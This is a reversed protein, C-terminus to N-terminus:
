QIFSLTHKAGVSLLFAPGLNKGNIYLQGFYCKIWWPSYWPDDTRHCNHLEYTKGTAIDSLKFDITECDTRTGSINVKLEKSM